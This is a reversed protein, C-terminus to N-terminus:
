KGWRSLPVPAIFGPFAKTRYEEYIEAPAIDTPFVGPEIANIRIPVKRLALDAAM